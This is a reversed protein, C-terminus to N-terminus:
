FLATKNKRATEPFFTRTKEFHAKEPMEGKWIGSARGLFKVGANKIARIDDELTDSLYLWQATSAHSLYYELLERPMSGDFYGKNM